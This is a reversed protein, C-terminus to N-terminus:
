INLYKLFNLKYITLEHSQRRTECSYYPPHTLYNNVINIHKFVGIKIIAITTIVPRSTRKRPLGMVM